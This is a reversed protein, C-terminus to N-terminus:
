VYEEERVDKLKKLKECRVIKTVDKSYIKYRDLKSNISLRNTEVNYNFTMTCNLYDSKFFLYIDYTIKESDEMLIDYPGNRWKKRIRKTSSPFTIRFNTNNYIVDLDYENKLFTSIAPKIKLIYEDRKCIISDLKNIGKIIKGFKSLIKKETLTFNSFM